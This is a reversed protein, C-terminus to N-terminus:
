IMNHFSDVWFNKTWPFLEQPQQHCIIFWSLKGWYATPHHWLLSIHAQKPNQHHHHKNLVFDVVLRGSPVHRTFTVALFPGRNQDRYWPPPQTIVRVSHTRSQSSVSKFLICFESLSCQTSYIILCQNQIQITIAFPSYLLFAIVHSSPDSFHLPGLIKRLIPDSEWSQTLASCCTMVCSPQLRLECEASSIIKFTVTVRQIHLFM